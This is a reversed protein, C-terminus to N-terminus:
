PLLDKLDDIISQLYQADKSFDNLRQRAPQEFFKSWYGSEGARDLYGPHRARESYENSLIKSVLKMHKKWDVEHRKFLRNASNLSRALISIDQFLKRKERYVAADLKNATRIFVEAYNARLECFVANPADNIVKIGSHHLKVTPHDIERTLDVVERKEFFPVNNGDIVGMARGSEAVSIAISPDSAAATSNSGVSGSSKAISPHTHTTNTEPSESKKPQFMPSRDQEGLRHRNRRTLNGERDDISMAQDGVQIDSTSLSAIYVAM